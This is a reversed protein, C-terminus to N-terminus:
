PERADGPSPRPDRVPPGPSAPAPTSGADAAPPTEPTGDGAAPSSVAAALESPNDLLEGVVRGPEEHVALFLRKREEARRPGLAHFARAVAVARGGRVFDALSALSAGKVTQNPDELLDVLVGISPVHGIKGLTRAAAARSYWLGSRLVENLLPVAREGAEGLAEVALERLYWSDDRLVDILIEVAKDTQRRRLDAILARKGELNRRKLAELAHETSKADMDGM